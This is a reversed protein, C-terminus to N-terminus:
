INTQVFADSDSMMTPGSVHLVTRVRACAAFTRVDKESTVVAVFVRHRAGTKSVCVRGLVRTRRVRPMQLAVM